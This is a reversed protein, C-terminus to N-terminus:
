DTSNQAPIAKHHLRIRWLPIHEVTNTQQQKNHDKGNKNSNIGRDSGLQTILPLQVSPIPRASPPSNKSIRMSSDGCWAVQKSGRCHQYPHIVGIYHWIGGIRSGASKSTSLNQAMRLFCLSNSVLSESAKIKLENEKELALVTFIHDGPLNFFQALM